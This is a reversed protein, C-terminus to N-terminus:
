AEANTQDRDDLMTRVRALERELRDAHDRLATRRQEDTPVPPIDTIGAVPWGPGRGGRFGFGGGRGLGLAGGRGRGWGRGGGRFGATSRGACFGAGWGTMPGMGNPGTRDGGPM